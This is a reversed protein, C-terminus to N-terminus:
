NSDGAVTDDLRSMLDEVAVELQVDRGVAEDTPTRQVHIDPVAGRDEMDTGDPLRWGRFPRRVTSGDVLSFSGTSIVGGFTEEGVVRGRGTNKIAHTFIEANSFSHENALVVIPKSWAYILRRDRPYADSPADEWAVGRPITSAHVPATLSALLVDTTWGGGNNRVDIVLGDKGHAAAYLQHEFDHVSPMSMSRIHLYGLRDQSLEDVLERNHRLEDQYALRSWTSWSIPTILIIMEEDGRRIDLLTEEGRTGSMAKALDMAPLQDDTESLPSDNVSTIVDGVLLRSESHDAPSQELVETIEFGGPVPRSQIGLYGIPDSSTSFGGGGYIGTHSGDVEGFMMRTVRKFAQPTRTSAALDSYQDTIAEWDLGKMDPHYFWRGFMRSTEDFKQAQEEALIIETDADIGITEVSGGKLPVTKASGSSVYSLTKGAPGRRLDRVTGSVLKKREDGMADVRYLGQTGDVNASFIIADGAPSLLLDDEEGEFRTLRSARKWATDLNEFELPDGPEYDAELDVLDLIKKKGTKKSVAEFHETREWDSMSGLSEDLFVRYVDYAEDGGIQNRDSRFILVKGDDSLQPSEDIDPHRTLNIAADPDETDMLWVDSNFDLDSVAYVIHRSDSAWQVDPPWWAELLLRDDGSALDRVYLDGRDRFYLLQRGDPSPVPHHNPFENVVVPQVDFRLAGAWREGSTNKPLDKKDASEDEDEDESGKTTSTANENSPTAPTDEEASEEETTAEDTEATESSEVEVTEEEDEDTEEEEELDERALSVTAGWIGEHGSRDSTFYLTQGDPSFTIWQDRAHDSTIFRTPHDDDTSRVLLQGRAAVAMAKGSPHRAAETVSSNLRQRKRPAISQDPNVKLHIPTPGVSPNRLDLRQLGDWSGFVVTSGDASVALDRAGHGITSNTEGPALSTLQVMDSEEGGAPLRWVNNQGDRSSLLIIDGSPLPYAEADNARNRTLQRFSGDKMNMSWLDQNSSGRYRPREMPAAGRSFVMMDGSIRPAEGKAATLQEIPGGDLPAQYMGSERFLSPESRGWFLIAEGDPTFGALSQSRDSTVLRDIPGTVVLRDGRQEVPMVYISTAGGRDSEFALQTGDPSFSSRLETAEHSTIREAHGGGTPVAWLDGGLSFVTISGDPSLTPYQQFGATPEAMASATTALFCTLTILHRRM